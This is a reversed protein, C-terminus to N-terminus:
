DMEEYGHETKNMLLFLSDIHICRGHEPFTEIQCLNAEALEELYEPTFGMDYAEPYFDAIAEIPIRRSSKPFKMKNKPKIIASHIFLLCPVIGSEQLLDVAQQLQKVSLLYSKGFALEELRNASLKCLTALMALRVPNECPPQIVRHLDLELLYGRVSEGNNTKSFGTESKFKRYMSHNDLIGM